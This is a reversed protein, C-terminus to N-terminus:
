GKGVSKNADEILYNRVNENWQKPACYRTAIVAHGRRALEISAGLGFGSGAGTILITQNM